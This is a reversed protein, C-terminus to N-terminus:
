YVPIEIRNNGDIASKPIVGQNATCARVVQNATSAVLLLLLITRCGKGPASIEDAKGPDRM